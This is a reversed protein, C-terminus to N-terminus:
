ESPVRAIFELIADRPPILLVQGAYMEIEPDVMGNAAAIAWWLAEYNPGFYRGTLLDLFGVENQKVRHERYGDRDEIFEIPAEWLAFEPTGDAAEYAKTGKYRSLASLTITAV